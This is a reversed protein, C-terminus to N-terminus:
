PAALALRQRIPPHSDFLWVVLVPPDPDMKNLRAVKILASRFAGPLGTRRLAYRDSQREFSRSLALLLPAQLLAVVALTLRLLPVTAPDAYAPGPDAPYGLGAAVGPLVAAVLWLGGVTLLLEGLLAKGRHRHVHHGVEHAFVVAIEEATLQELLTDGLLVRRARGLGALAANAKRTEASLGLRYIGEVALGTGEALGRLRRLLDADELRTVRYFLPLVVVPLLYGMVLRVALWAAAAWLWWYPGGHRLLAYLGLLVLLGIPWGVLGGKLRRKLWAGFTENSLGYRHELVFGSWFAASLTLLELAAGYFVALMVLRLWPGPGTLGRVARDLAPGAGVALATLAALSGAGSAVQALLKQREYRKVQPPAPELEQLTVVTGTTSVTM